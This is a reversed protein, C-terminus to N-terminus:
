VLEGKFAKDLIAPLMADLEAATETQLTKVADLKAQLADLEAVISRQEELDPFAIPTARLIGQSINVQADALGTKRAVLHEQALPSAIAYEMFRADILDLRPRIRILKDSIMLRPSDERVTAPVGVRKLPGARTVLVDGQKLTLEPRPILATPLRKNEHSEFRCWQVATTKLVGWDENSAPFDDCQPSWGADIAAAVDDICAKTWAESPKDFLQALAGMFIANAEAITGDRLGKAEEVKAALDEIRAVIRRQEDIPPLPVTIEPLRKLALVRNRGASGPCIRGIQELGPRTCLYKALFPAFCRAEDVRYTPYRVSGYLGDEAKSCVAIAGEWAFTIQLILDGEKMLFLDKDGVELGSRPRKHFIGRGYSYTGIEQYDRDAVIEVPRRELRILEGLSVRPWAASM